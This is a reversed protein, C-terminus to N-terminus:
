TEFLSKITYTKLVPGARFSAQTSTKIESSPDCKEIFQSELLINQFQINKSKWGSLQLVLNPSTSNPCDTFPNCLFTAYSVAVLGLLPYFKVCFPSLTTFLKKEKKNARVCKHAQFLLLIFCALFHLCFWSILVHLFIMMSPTRLM